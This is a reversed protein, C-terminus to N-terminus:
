QTFAILSRYDIQTDLLSATALYGRNSSRPDRATLRAGVYRADPSGGGNLPVYFPKPSSIYKAVTAQDSWVFASGNYRQKYLHLEGNEYRYRQAATGVPAPIYIAGSLVYDGQSDALYSGNQVLYAVRETYYTIAYSSGAWTPASTVQTEEGNRLYVNSHGTTGGAAWRLIDDEIGWFPVILRQGPIPPSPNDKIMVLTADRTDKWVYNPGSAINQFSVGATTPSVGNVPASSVVTLTEDRLQPVSVSAHIDRTLRLIGQQAEQQAANVATNKAYLTLGSRLVEYFIGGLLGLLFVAILMEAVTFGDERVNHLRGMKM